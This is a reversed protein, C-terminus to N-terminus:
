PSFPEDNQLTHDLIGPSAMSQSAIATAVSPNPRTMAMRPQREGHHTLIIVFVKHVLSPQHQRERWSESSGLNPHPPSSPLTSVKSGNPYVFRCDSAM